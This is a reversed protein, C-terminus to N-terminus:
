MPTFSYKQLDKLNPSLSFMNETTNRILSRSLIFISPAENPCEYPVRVTCAWETRASTEDPGPLSLM